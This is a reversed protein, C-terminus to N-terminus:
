KVGSTEGLNKPLLSIYPFCHGGELGDQVIRGSKM